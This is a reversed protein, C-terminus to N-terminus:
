REPDRDFGRLVALMPTMVFSAASALFLVIAAARLATLSRVLVVSLCALAAVFLAVPLDQQWRPVTRAGRYPRDDVEDLLANYDPDDDDGDVPVFDPHAAGSRPDWGDDPPAVFGRDVAPGRLEDDYARRRRPREAGGVDNIRQM